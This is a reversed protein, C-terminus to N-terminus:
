FFGALEDSNNVRYNFSILIEGTVVDTLRGNVEIM